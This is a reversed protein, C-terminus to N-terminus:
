IDQQGFQLFGKGLHAIQKIYIPVVVVLSASEDCITANPFQNEQHWLQLCPPCASCIDLHNM